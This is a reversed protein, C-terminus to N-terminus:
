SSLFTFCQACLQCETLVLETVQYIGVMSPFYHRRGPRFKFFSGFEYFMFSGFEM